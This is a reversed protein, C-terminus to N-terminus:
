WRRNGEPIKQSYAAAFFDFELEVTRRFLRELGRQRRSWVTAGEREFEGTFAM